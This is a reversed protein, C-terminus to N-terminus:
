CDKDHNLMDRRRLRFKQRAVRMLFLPNGLIYRRWLRAPEIALRYLWEMRMRRIWPPARRVAGSLFDLLAGVAIPVTCYDAGLNREIWKEQRPVGMAVLLIDPRLKRIRELVIPEEEPSLYGDNVYVFRHQPLVASLGTAAKEGNERVAGVIGVTVPKLFAKLLAPVFDTGNLNELFPRGYLQSAAIDVGIGDPLVLFDALIAAFEADAAAVNASHANLFAVKTYKKREIANAILAIADERSTNRVRVGLIEMTAQSRDRDPAMQVNM